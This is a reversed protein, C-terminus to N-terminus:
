RDSDSNLRKRYILIRGVEEFGAAQHAAPSLPYDPNTDSFVTGIHRHLFWNSLASMLAKGTGSGRAETAVYWGEVHGYLQDQSRRLQGEILGVPRQELWAIFAIETDSNLIARCESLAQERELEPWLAQRLDAWADLDSSEVARIDM